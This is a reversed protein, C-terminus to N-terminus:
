LHVRTQQVQNLLNNKHHNKIQTLITSNLTKFLHQYQLDEWLQLLLDQVEEEELHEEKNFVEGQYLGKNVLVGLLIQIPRLNNKIQRKNFRILIKNKLIIKFRHDKIILNKFL